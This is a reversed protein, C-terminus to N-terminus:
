VKAGTVCRPCMVHRDPGAPGLRWGSVRARQEFVARTERKAALLEAGCPRGMPRNDADVARGNCVLQPTRVADAVQRLVDPGPKWLQQRGTAQVPEALRHVGALRWHYQGAAAWPGCVCAVRRRGADCVDVLQALGVIAGTDVNHGAPDFGRAQCADIGPRDWGKGAHILLLGRWRTSWSRNEVRKTGAVIAAAWPNLLTLGRADTLTLTTM